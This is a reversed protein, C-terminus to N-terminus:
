RPRPTGRLSVLQRAVLAISTMSAVIVMKVSAADDPTVVGPPVKGELFVLIPLM